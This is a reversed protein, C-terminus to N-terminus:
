DKDGTPHCELCRQAINLINKEAHHKETESKDHCTYCTWDWNSSTHCVSCENNAGEHNTPFTHDISAGGWTDTSHCQSCQGDFHGSPKDASHCSVCDTAGAAAHNFTAPKWASTSHCSSCQGAFHNTPKDDSHCSQCDNGANAHNFSAPKWANTSHCQSCQGAFHNAPKDDSHCSQCDNGANAHNFSAPKWANTSHCQSCQGAFHNAPKDASHCSQCDVAGVAQHNFDAPKWANTSHCQSCQGAFHNAPKDDNHCSQCDFAGAAQHNFSAPRWTNTSHCASCQGSFHGAPRDRDHCSQCDTSASIAHDFHVENWTVPSHCASCTGAFHAVPLQAIHCSECFNGTGAYKGELHCSQCELLAHQGVLPYFEHRAGPSGPPFIVMVPAIDSTPSAKVNGEAGIFPMFTAQNLPEGEAVPNALLMLLEDVKTGIVEWDGAQSLTMGAHTEFLPRARLLLGELSTRITVQQIAASPEFKRLSEILQSIAQDFAHLAEEARPTDALAQLDALRQNAIELQYRAREFDSSTLLLRLQEVSVQIPFLASGPKIPFSTSLVVGTALALSTMFLGAFVLIIILRRMTDM